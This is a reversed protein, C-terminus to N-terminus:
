VISKRKSFSTPPFHVPRLTFKENKLCKGKEILELKLAQLSKMPIDIALSDFNFSVHTIIFYLRFLMLVYFKRTPLLDRYKPHNKIEFPILAECLNVNQLKLVLNLM